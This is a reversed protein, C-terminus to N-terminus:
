ERLTLVSAYYSVWKQEWEDSTAISRKLIVDNKIHLKKLDWAASGDPTEILWKQGGFRRKFFQAAHALILHDPEYWAYYVGEGQVEQKEFRVFAEMKHIDRKVEKTLLNFKRVDADTEDELVRPNVNLQKWLVSYLCNWKESARNLAALEFSSLESQAIKLVFGPRVVPVDQLFWDNEKAESWIIQQPKLNQSLMARAHGRWEAFNGVKVFQSSVGM